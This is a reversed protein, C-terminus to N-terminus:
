QAGQLNEFQILTMNGSKEFIRLNDIFDKRKNIIIKEIFGGFLEEEDELEISEVRNQPPGRRHKVKFKKELCNMDKQLSCRMLKLLSPLLHAKDGGIAEEGQGGIQQVLKGKKLEYRAKIPLTQQWLFYGKKIKFYGQSRLEINMKKLKKMQKYEGSLPQFHNPSSPEGRLFLPFLFVMVVRGGTVALGKSSLRPSTGVLLKKSKGLSSAYKEYTPLFRRPLCCLRDGLLSGNRFVLFIM